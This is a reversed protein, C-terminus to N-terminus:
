VQADRMSGELPSGDRNMLVCLVDRDDEENWGQLSPVLWSYSLVSDFPSTGVFPEFAELCKVEAFEGLAEVGPYVDETSPITAYIEHTHQEVCDIVPLTEVEPPLTDAVQLCVPDSTNTEIDLVPEDDVGTDDDDGSCAGVAVLVPVLAVLWRRGERSTV